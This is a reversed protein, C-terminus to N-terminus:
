AAKQLQKLARDHRQRVREASTGFTFGIAEFSHEFGDALGYRQRVIERDREDRVHSLLWECDERQERSAFTYDANYIPDAPTNDFINGSYEESEPDYLDTSLHTRGHHLEDIFAKYVAGHIDQFAYTTFQTGHSSDFQKLANLVTIYGEQMFDKVLDGAICDFKRELHRIVMLILPRCLEIAHDASLSNHNVLYKKM